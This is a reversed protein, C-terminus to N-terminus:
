IGKLGHGTLLAICREKEFDCKLFGAYALAGSPEVYLGEKGLEKRANMAEEDSVVVGFGKSEKLARLAQIGQIPDGCAIASCITKPIMPKIKETKNKWADVVPSCGRTQVGVMKPLVDILGVIQLEKFAKWVSTILTGNGIPCFIYDPVKWQLQDAIEYGISKSGEGRYPYDGMLFAGDIESETECIRM